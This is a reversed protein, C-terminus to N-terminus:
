FIAYIFKDKDEKNIKNLKSLEIKQSILYKLFIIFEFIIMSSELSAIILLTGKFFLSYILFNLILIIILLVLYM